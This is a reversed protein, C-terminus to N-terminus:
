FRLFVFSTVSSNQRAPGANWAGRTTAPRGVSGSPRGCTELIAPSRRDGTEAPDSVLASRRYIM